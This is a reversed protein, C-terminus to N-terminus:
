HDDQGLCFDLGMKLLRVRANVSSREKKREIPREDVELLILWM